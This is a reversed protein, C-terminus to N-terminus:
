ALIGQKAEEPNLIEASWIGGVSRLNALPSEHAKPLKFKLTMLNGRQESGLSFPRHLGNPISLSCGSSYVGCTQSAFHATSGTRTPFFEILFFLFFWFRPSFPM